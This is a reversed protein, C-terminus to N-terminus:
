KVSSTAAAAVPSPRTEAAVPMRGAFVLWRLWDSAAMQDPAGMVCYIDPVVGVRHAVHVRVQVASALKLAGGAASLSDGGPFNSARGGAFATTLRIGTRPM